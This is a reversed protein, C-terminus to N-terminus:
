RRRPLGAAAHRPRERASHNTGLHVSSFSPVAKCSNIAMAGSKRSIALDTQLSSQELQEFPKVSRPHAAYRDGATVCGDVYETRRPERETREVARQRRVCIQLIRSPKGLASASIPSRARASAITARMSPM